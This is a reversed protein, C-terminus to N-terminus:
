CSFVVNYWVRTGYETITATSGARSLDHLGDGYFEIGVVGNQAGADACYHTVQILQQLVKKSNVSSALLRDRRILMSIPQGTHGAAGEIGEMCLRARRLWSTTTHSDTGVLTDPFAFRQGDIRM